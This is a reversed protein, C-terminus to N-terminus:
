PENVVVKLAPAVNEQPQDSASEPAPESVNPAVGEIVEYAVQALDNLFDDASRRVAKWM